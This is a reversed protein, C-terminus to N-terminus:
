GKRVRGDNRSISRPRRIPFEDDTVPQFPQSPEPAASDILYSSPTLGLLLASTSVREMPCRSPVAVVPTQIVRTFPQCQVYRHPRPASALSVIGLIGARIPVVSPHH